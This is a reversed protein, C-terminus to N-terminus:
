DNEERILYLYVPFHDSYGAEGNANRLPYTKYRGTQNTLYDANFIGAKWYRFSTYDKSLLPGSVITQDFLDWADRYAM